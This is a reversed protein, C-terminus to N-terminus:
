CVLRTRQRAGGARVIRENVRRHRDVASRVGTRRPASTTAAIPAIAPVGCHACHGPRRHRATAAHRLGWAVPLVATIAVVLWAPLVLNWRRMGRSTIRLYRFDGARMQVDAPDYDRYEPRERQLFAIAGGREMGIGCSHAAGVFYVEDWPPPGLNRVWLVCMAGFLLLSLLTLLNLLRGRV